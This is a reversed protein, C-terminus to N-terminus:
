HHPVTALTEGPIWETKIRASRAPADPNQERWRVLELTKFAQDRLRISLTAPRPQYFEAEQRDGVTLVSIDEPVRLGAQHIGAMVGWFFSLSCLITTYQRLLDRHAALERRITYHALEFRPIELLFTTEDFEVDPHEDHFYERFGDIGTHFRDGPNAKQEVRLIRRHGMQYLQEAAEELRSDPLYYVSDANFASADLGCFVMPKLRSRIRKILPESLTHLDTLSTCALADCNQWLDLISREEWSRVYIIKVLWNAKACAESIHMIFDLNEPAAWAPMVLGLLKQLKTEAIDECVYTGSGRSRELIGDSVLGGVAKRMTMYSVGFQEALDRESPLSAGRAFNGIKIEKRLREKAIQVKTLRERQLEM